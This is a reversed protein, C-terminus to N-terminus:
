APRAAAISAPLDTVIGAVGRQWLRRATAADNVTWVHVPAGLARAARVFDFNRVRLFEARVFDVLAMWSFLLM